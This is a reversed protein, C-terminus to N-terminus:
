ILFSQICICAVIKKIKVQFVILFCLFGVNNGQITHQDKLYVDLLIYENKKYLAFNYLYSKFSELVRNLVVNQIM